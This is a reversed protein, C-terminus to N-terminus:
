QLKGGLEVTELIELIRRNEVREQEEETWFLEDLSKNLVKCISICLNITPNYDGKEIANITQRSVGVKEMLVQVNVEDISRASIKCKNEASQYTIVISAKVGDINILDNAVKASLVSMDMKEIEDIAILAYSNKYFEVNDEIDLIM